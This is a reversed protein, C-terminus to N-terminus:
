KPFNTLSSAHTNDRLRSSLIIQETPKSWTINVIGYSSAQHGGPTLHPIPLDGTHSKNGTYQVPTLTSHNAKLFQMNQTQSSPWGLNEVTAM